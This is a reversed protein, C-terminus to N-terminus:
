KSPFVEPLFVSVTSSFPASLMYVHVHVCIWPEIDAQPRATVGHRHTHICVSVHMCLTMIKTNLSATLIYCMSNPFTKMGEEMLANKM